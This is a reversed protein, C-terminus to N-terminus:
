VSSYIQPKAPSSEKAFLQALVTQVSSEQSLLPLLPKGTTEATTYQTINEWGQV